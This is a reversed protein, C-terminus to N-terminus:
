KRLRLIRRAINRALAAAEEETAIHGSGDFNWKGTHSNCDAIVRAEGPNDFRGFVDIFNLPKEGIQPDPHFTYKGAATEIEFEPTAPHYSLPRAPRVGHAALYSVFADEFAKVTSNRNRKM